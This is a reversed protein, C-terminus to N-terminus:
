LGTVGMFCDIDLRGGGGRFGFFFFFFVETNMVIAGLNGGFRLELGGLGGLVEMKMKTTVAMDRRRAVGLSCALGSRLEALYRALVAGGLWGVGNGHRWLFGFFQLFSFGL